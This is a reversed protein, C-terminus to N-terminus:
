LLSQWNGLLLCKVQSMILQLSRLSLTLDTREKNINVGMKEKAVNITVVNNGLCSWRSSFYENNVSNLEWINM